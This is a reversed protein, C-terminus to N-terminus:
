EQQAETKQFVAQRSVPTGPQIANGHPQGICQNINERGDCQTIQGPPQKVPAPRPQEPHQRHQQEADAIQQDKGVAPQVPQETEVDVTEDDVQHGRRATDIGQAAATLRFQHKRGDGHHQQQRWCQQQQRRVPQYAVM